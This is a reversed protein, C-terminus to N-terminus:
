ESLIEVEKIVRVPISRDGFEFYGDKYSNHVYDEALNRSTELTTYGNGISMFHYKYKARFKSTYLQEGNFVTVKVYSKPKAQEDNLRKQYKENSAKLRKKDYKAFIIIPIAILAIIGIVILLGSM